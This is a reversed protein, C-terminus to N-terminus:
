NTKSIRLRNWGKQAPQEAPQKEVTESEQPQATNWNRVPKQAKQERVLKQQEDTQPVGIPMIQGILTPSVFDRKQKEYAEILATMLEESPAANFSKVKGGYFLTFSPCPSSYLVDAYDVGRIFRLMIRPQVYCSSLVTSTNLDTELYNNIFLDREQPPLIGCFGTLAYGDLTYGDFDPSAPTVTYCFATEAELINKLALPPISDKMYPTIQPGQPEPTRRWANSDSQFAQTDEQASASVTSFALALASLTLLFLNNKM